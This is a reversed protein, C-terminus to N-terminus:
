RPLATHCANCSLSGSTWAVTNGNHCAVSSCSGSSYTPTGNSVDTSNATKYGNTRTWSNNL